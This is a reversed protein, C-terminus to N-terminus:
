VGALPFPIAYKRMIEDKKTWDLRLMDMDFEAVLAEYASEMTSSTLVQGGFKELLEPLQIGVTVPSSQILKELQATESEKLGEIKVLFLRWSDDPNQKCLELFINNYFKQTARSDEGVFYAKTTKRHDLTGYILYTAM